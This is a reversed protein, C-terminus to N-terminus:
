LRSGGPGLGPKGGDRLWVPPLLVPIGTIGQLLEGRQRSWEHIADFQIKVLGRNRYAPDTAVLEPRGVKIPVGAYSWTQSILNMSSVIKGTTTDEIITFDDVSFTPHSGSLLDSTWTGVREDPEEGGIFPPM